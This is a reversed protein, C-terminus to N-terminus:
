ATQSAAIAPSREPDQVREAGPQVAMGMGLVVLGPWYIYALTELNEGLSFLTMVLLVALATEALESKQSKWLLTVYGVAFSFGLGLFVSWAM